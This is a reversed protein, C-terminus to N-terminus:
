TIIKVLLLQQCSLAPRYPQWHVRIKVLQWQHKCQGNTKTTLQTSSHAIPYLYYLCIFLLLSCLCCFHHLSFNKDCCPAYCILLATFHKCSTAGLLPPHSPLLKCFTCLIDYCYCLTPCQPLNEVHIHPVFINLCTLKLAWRLIEALEVLVYSVLRCQKSCVKANPLLLLQNNRLLM